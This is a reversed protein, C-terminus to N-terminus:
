PTPAFFVRLGAWGTLDGYLFIRAAIVHFADITPSFKTPQTHLRDESGVLLVFRAVPCQVLRGRAKALHM